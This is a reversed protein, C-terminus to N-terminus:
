SSVLPERAKVKNKLTLIEYIHVYIIYFQLVIKTTRCSKYSILFHTQFCMIHIQFIRTVNSFGYIKQTILPFYKM